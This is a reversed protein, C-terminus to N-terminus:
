VGPRVAGDFTSRRWGSLKDIRVREGTSPSHIMRGHGVYMGVHGIGHFFLLDGPQLSSWSVKKRIARYQSTTVRPIKVGAKRWAFQVLGSCDFANPGTAGYRYPDGIKRKAAAVARGAKVKQLLVRSLKAIERGSARTETRQAIAAMGTEATTRASSEMASETASETASNAATAQLAVAGASVTM